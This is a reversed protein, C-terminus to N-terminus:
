YRLLGYHRSNVSKCYKLTGISLLAVHNIEQLQLTEIQFESKRLIIFFIRNNIFENVIEMFDLRIVVTLM